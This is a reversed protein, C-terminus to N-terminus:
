VRAAGRTEGKTHQMRWQHIPPLFFFSLFLFGLHYQKGKSLQAAIEKSQIHPNCKSRSNLKQL